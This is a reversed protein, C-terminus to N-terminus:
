RSLSTMVLLAHAKPLSQANQATNAPDRARLNLSNSNNNNDERTSCLNSCTAQNYKNSLSNNSCASRPPKLNSSSNGEAMLTNSIATQELAIRELNALDQDAVTAEAVVVDEVVEEVNILSGM